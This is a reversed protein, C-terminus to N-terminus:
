ADDHTSKRHNQAHSAPLIMILEFAAQDVSNVLQSKPVYEFQHEPCIYESASIQDDLAENVDKVERSADKISRFPRSVKRM